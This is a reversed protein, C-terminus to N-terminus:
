AHPHIIGSDRLYDALLRLTAAGGVHSIEFQQGHVATLDVVLGDVDFQRRYKPHLQWVPESIDHAPGCRIAYVLGIAQSLETDIEDPLKTTEARAADLTLAAVGFMIMAHKQASQDGPDSAAAAAIELEHLAHELYGSM